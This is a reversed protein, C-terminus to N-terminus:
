LNVKVKGDKIEEVFDSIKEKQFLAQLNKRIEIYKKHEGGKSHAINRTGRSGGQPIGM